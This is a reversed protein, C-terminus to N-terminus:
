WEKPPALDKLSLIAHHFLDAQRQTAVRPPTQRCHNWARPRQKGGPVIVIQSSAACSQLMMTESFTVLYLHPGFIGHKSHYFIIFLFMIDISKAPAHQLLMTVAWFQRESENGWRDRRARSRSTSLALVPGCGPTRLPQAETGLLNGTFHGLAKSARVM